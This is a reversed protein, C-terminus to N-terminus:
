GSSRGTNHGPMGGYAGLMDQADSQEEITAKLDTMFMSRERRLENCGLKAVDKLGKLEMGTM